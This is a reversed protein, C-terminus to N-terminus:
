VCGRVNPLTHTCELLIDKLPLNKAPPPPDYCEPRGYIGTKRMKQDEPMNRGEPQYTRTSISFKINPKTLTISPTM